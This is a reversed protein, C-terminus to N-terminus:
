FAFVSVGVQLGYQESEFRSEVPGFGGTVPDIRVYETTSENWQYFLEGTIGVNKAVLWAAGAGGLWSWGKARPELSAVDNSARQWQRLTRGTVFPHVRSDRGGFYYTLGPGVGWQHSRGGDYGIRQFQLNAHVALHPVVFYGVRPNVDILFSASEDGTSRNGTIRATGGLLWSGRDIAYTQAEARPASALALGLVLPLVVALSTSRMM